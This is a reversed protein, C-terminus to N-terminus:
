GDPVGSHRCGEKPRPKTFQPEGHKLQLTALHVVPAPEMRCEGPLERKRVVVTVVPIGEIVRPGLDVRVQRRGGCDQPVLASAVAAAASM